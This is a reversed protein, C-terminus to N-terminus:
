LQYNDVVGSCSSVWTCCGSHFPLHSRVVSLHPYGCVMSRVPSRDEDAPLTQRRPYELTRNGASVVYGDLALRGLDLVLYHLYFEPFQPTLCVNRIWTENSSAPSPFERSLWGRFRFLELWEFLSRDVCKHSISSESYSCSCSCSGICCCWDVEDREDPPGDRGLCFLTLHALMTCCVSTQCCSTPLSWEITSFALVLELM